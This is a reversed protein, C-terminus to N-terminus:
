MSLGTHAADLVGECGQQGRVVIQLQQHDGNGKGNACHDIDAVEEKSPTCGGADFSLSPKGM